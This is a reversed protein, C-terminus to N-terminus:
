TRRVRGLRPLFRGVSAVYEEYTKGHLHHLYPEEVSRVQLNVGVLLVVFGAAALANPVAGALGGVTVLAATFIPNRVLRFPGTTVLAPRETEGVGIRWSNGMALQSGFVACTGVCAVVVGTLRLTLHDLLPLPRTGLLEAVPAAVSLLGGVAMTGTAWWAVAGVPIRLGHDGTRRWQIGSRLVQALLIFCAYIVLAVIAVMPTDANGRIAVDVNM